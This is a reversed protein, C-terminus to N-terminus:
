QQALCKKKKPASSVKCMKKLSYARRPIFHEVLLIIVHLHIGHLVSVACTPSRPLLNCFGDYLAAILHATSRGVGCFTLCRPKLFLPKNKCDRHKQPAIQSNIKLGWFFNPLGYEVSQWLYKLVRVSLIFLLLREEWVVYGFFIRFLKHKMCKIKQTMWRWRAGLPHFLPFRSDFYLPYYLSALVKSFSLFFGDMWEARMELCQEERRESRSNASSTFSSRWQHSGFDGGAGGDRVKGREWERGWSNGKADAVVM